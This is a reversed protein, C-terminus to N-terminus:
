DEQFNLETNRMLNSEIQSVEAKTLELEQGEEDYANMLEIYFHPAYVDYLNTDKEINRKIDGYIKCDYAYTGYESFLHVKFFDDAYSDTNVNVVETVGKSYEVANM